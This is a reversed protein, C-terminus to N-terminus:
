IAETVDQLKSKDQWIKKFTKLLKESNAIVTSETSKNIFNSFSDGKQYGLDVATFGQIPMYTITEEKSESCAFQQMQANTSNSKFTVKERIWQACEKAIAKQTLKNKLSIEFESGYLSRERNLKPIHFERQEKSIKDTVQTGIFTPETFIFELSEIKKLEKKLAEYAYMSFSSASIKLKVGKNLELKLDDGWLDNTNDLLKM